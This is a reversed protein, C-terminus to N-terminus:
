VVRCRDPRARLIAASRFPDEAAARDRSRRKVALPTRGGGGDKLARVMPAYTEGGFRSELKQSEGAGITTQVLRVEDKGSAAATNGDATHVPYRCSTRRQRVPMQPGLPSRSRETTASNAARLRPRRLAPPPLSEAERGGPSLSVGNPARCKRKERGGIAARNM